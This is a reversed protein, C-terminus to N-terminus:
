DKDFIYLSRSIFETQELEYLTYIAQTLSKFEPYERLGELERMICLYYDIYIKEPKKKWKIEFFRNVDKTSVKVISSSEFINHLNKHNYRNVIVLEPYYDSMIKYHKDAEYRCFYHFEIHPPAIIVWSCSFTGYYISIVSSLNKNKKVKQRRKIGM